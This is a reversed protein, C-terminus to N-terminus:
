FTNAASGVPIYGKGTVGTLGTTFPIGTLNTGVGASPTGLAPTTFSPSTQMAVVTGTGTITYEGVVGANDYLIRTTTGSTITTTGVTLGSGSSSTGCSFANTAATYNLHNGGTDTCNTLARWTQATASDGVIVADDAPSGSALSGPPIAGSVTLMLYGNSDTRGRLNSLPTLPGDQGAYVNLTAIVYGNSDTRGRLNMLPTLPGQAVSVGAGLLLGLVFAGTWRRM